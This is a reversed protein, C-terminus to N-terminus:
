RSPAVGSLVISSLMVVTLIVIVFHNGLVKLLAIKSLPIIALTM